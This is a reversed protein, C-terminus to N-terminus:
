RREERGERLVAGVRFTVVDRDNFRAAKAEQLLVEDFVQSAELAAVFASADKAEEALGAVRLTYSRAKTADAKADSKGDGEPAVGSSTVECMTLVVREGKLTALSALLRSWDPHKGVARAAELQARTASLGSKAKTLDQDVKELRQQARLAAEAAQRVEGSDAAMAACVGLLVLAYLSGTVGWGRIRRERAAAARRAAPILNVSNM